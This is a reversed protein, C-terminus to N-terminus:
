NSNGASSNLHQALLSMVDQIVQQKSSGSQPGENQPPPVQPSSVSVAAASRPQSHQAQALQRFLNQLRDGSSETSSAEIQAHSPPAQQVQGNNQQQVLQRIAEVLNQSQSDFPPQQQMQISSACNMPFQFRQGHQASEPKQRLQDFAQLLKLVMVICPNVPSSIEALTLYRNCLEMIQSYISERANAVAHQAAPQSLAQLLLTAVSSVLVDSQQNQALQMPIQPPPPQQPVRQQPIHLQSPLQPTAGEASWGNGNLWHILQQQHPLLEAATPEFLPSSQGDMESFEISEPIGQDGARRENMEQADSDMKMQGVLHPEDRRFLDSQYAIM